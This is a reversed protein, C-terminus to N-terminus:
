QGPQQIEGVLWDIVGGGEKNPFLLNSAQNAM